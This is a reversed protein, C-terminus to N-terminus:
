GVEANSADVDKETPNIPKNVAEVDLLDVSWGISFLQPVAAAARLVAAVIERGGNIDWESPVDALSGYGAQRCYQLFVREVAADFLRDNYSEFDKVASM